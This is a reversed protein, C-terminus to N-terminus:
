PKGVTATNKRAYKMYKRQFNMVVSIVGFSDEVDAVSIARISLTRINSLSRILNRVLTRVKLCFSLFYYNLEAWKQNLYKYSIGLPLSLINQLLCTDPLKQHWVTRCMHDICPVPVELSCICSLHKHWMMRHSVSGLNLLFLLIGLTSSCHHYVLRSGLVGLVIMLCRTSM